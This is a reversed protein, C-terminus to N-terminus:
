AYKNVFYEGLCSLNVKIFPYVEKEELLNEKETISNLKKIYKEINIYQDIDTMEKFLLVLMKAIYYIIVKLNQMNEFNSELTQIAMTLLSQQLDNNAKIYSNNENEKLFNKLTLTLVLTYFLIKRTIRNERESINLKSLMRMIENVFGIRVTQKKELKKFINKSLQAIQEYNKDYDEITYNFETEKEM